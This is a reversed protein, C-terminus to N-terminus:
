RYSKFILNCIDLRCFFVALPDCVGVLGKAHESKWCLNNTRFVHVEKNPLLYENLM